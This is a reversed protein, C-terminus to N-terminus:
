RPRAMKDLEDKVRRRIYSPNNVEMGPLFDIFIKRFIGEAVHPVKSCKLM